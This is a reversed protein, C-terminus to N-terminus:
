RKPLVAAVEAVQAPTMHREQVYHGAQDSISAVAAILTNAMTVPADDAKRHVIYKVTTPESM